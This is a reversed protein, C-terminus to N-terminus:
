KEFYYGNVYNIEIEGDADITGNVRTILLRNEWDEILYSYADTDQSFIEVYPNL